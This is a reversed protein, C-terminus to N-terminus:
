INNEYRSISFARRMKPICLDNEDNLRNLRADRLIRNLARMIVRSCEDCLRFNWDKELLKDM